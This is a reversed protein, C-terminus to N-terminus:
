DDKDELLEPNEYINGVVELSEEHFNDYFFLAGSNNGGKQATVGCVGFKIKCIFEVEGECVGMNEGLEQTFIHCKCIDGEYIDKGTRDKLGTYQMLITNPLPDLEGNVIDWGDDTNPYFMINSAVAWARFKIERM